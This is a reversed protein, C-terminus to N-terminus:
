RNVRNTSSISLSEVPARPPHLGRPDCAGPDCDRRRDARGSVEDESGLRLRGRGWFGHLRGLRRRAEVALEVDEDLLPRAEGEQEVHALAVSLRDEGLEVDGLVVALAGVVIPLGFRPGFPAVVRGGVWLRDCRLDHDRVRRLGALM